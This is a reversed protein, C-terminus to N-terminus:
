LNAPISFHFKSGIGQESEVWIEGNHLELIKKCHALGIGIGEYEQQTHLRQFLLFIKDQQNQPIGIGNDSVEFQWFSDVLQASIKIHPFTNEKIYKLANGILNQLLLRIELEYVRISPLSNIEITAHKNKISIRFDDLVEHVLKNFDVEILEPNKGLRSYDLLGKILEEMRLTSQEIYNLKKSLNDNLKVSEDENLLSILGIINNVPTRLDHSAIYTFQELEKNKDEINKTYEKFKAETKKRETIDIISVLVYNEKEQPILNLGIEIPFELGNKKVAYLDRGAGMSRTLPKEYFTERHKLHIDKFRAPVLIEVKKGILDERSYEFLIETQKNIMVIQGRNDVLIMANPASEVVLRFQESARKRESIDIISAIVSIGEDNELPNLGIEVPFMAGGKKLAYLEKNGGMQRSEPNSFFKQLYHTHNSHFEIPILVQINKGILESKNYLFLKEAASNLYVIEGKNNVFILATPSAEVLLQFNPEGYKTAKM